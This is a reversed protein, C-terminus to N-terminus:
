YEDFPSLKNLRAFNHHADIWRVTGSRCRMAVSQTSAGGSSYRVGQLLEGSSIGTAAFFVEDGAILDETKYIKEIDVGATQAAEREEDNRPWAKCQIAGGLCSIAAASLVGETTGGIGMLVDIEREPLAAEISAAIDGDSILKVRAGANRIEALLKEHRPRDLVVVTLDSVKRKKALAINKLNVPVPANIDICDRAEAGTVIKNMYYFQSPCHMTGKASLAVVSIAGPLGRAVLNTGDVPDVAIDVKLDSGDGIHEGIYLMPAHDKEGEGIIVVGDMQVSGLVHRMATVAAQDVANKDGRGLYRASALAAAETVRVLEIAINREILAELHNSKM